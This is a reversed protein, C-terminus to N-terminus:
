VARVHIVLVQTFVCLPVTNKFPVKQTAKGLSFLIMFCKPYKDKISDEMIWIQMEVSNYSFCAAQAWYDLEANSPFFWLGEACFILVSTLYVPKGVGECSCDYGSSCATFVTWLASAYAKWVLVFLVSVQKNAHQQTMSEIVHHATIKWCPATNKKRSLGKPDYYTLSM